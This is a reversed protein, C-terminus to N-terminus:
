ISYIKLNKYNMGYETGTANYIMIFFKVTGTGANDSTFTLETWNTNDTSYYGTYVGNVRKLKFYTWDTTTLLMNSLSTGNMYGITVAYSNTYAQNLKAEILAEFDGTLDNTLYIKGTSSNANSTKLTVVGNDSTKTLNAGGSWNTNTGDDYAITDWVTYPESQFIRDDIETKAVVDIEGAGTGTYGNSLVAVGNNDTTATGILRLAM